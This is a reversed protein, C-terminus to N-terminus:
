SFTFRRVLVTYSQTVRARGDQGGRDRGLPLTPFDATIRHVPIGRFRGRSKPNNAGVGGNEHLFDEIARSIEFASEASRHRVRVTLSHSEMLRLLPTGGGAGILVIVHDPTPPEEFVHIVPNAEDYLAGFGEDRLAEGIARELGLAM